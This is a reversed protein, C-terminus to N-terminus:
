RVPVREQAAPSEVALTMVTPVPRTGTMLSVANSDASVKVIASEAGVPPATSPVCAEVVIVITSSSLLTCNADEATSTASFAPLTTRVTVRVPEVARACFTAQAETLPVAIEPLSKPVDPRAAGDPTSAKAGPSVMLVREMGMMLSTAISPGSVKLTARDDGVLPATSPAGEVATTVMSLSSRPTMICDPMSVTLSPAPVAVSVTRRDPAELPAM